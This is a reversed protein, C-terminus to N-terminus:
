SRGAPKGLSGEETSQRTRPIKTVFPLVM